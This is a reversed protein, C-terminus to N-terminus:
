IFLGVITASLLSAMTAVLLMKLGFSSVEKVKAGNIAQVSGIIIGISSFNAFSMLFTSIIAVTKESFDGMLPQFELIAVFENSLLKMGMLSGSAIIDSAPIGMMYAIPAFVYGVITTLDMGIIADFVGNLLALIGLYGILMAAVILAVKGGDLAGNSIADFINKSRVMDDIDIDAEEGTVKVPAVISAIVLASVINLVCAVLVYKAPLMTMYSAVLAASVSAMASVCIIFLRNGKFKEVHTRIALLSESQGFFMSNVANFSEVRPLGTLKSLLGGVYKIIYPLIRLHTLIAFLVSTFVVPLLVNVFFPGGGEPIWGGVVFDIGETAYALIKNFGNAVTEIIKLGVTTALLFWTMLLQLVIMIGVSKFNVNKKDNSLLYAAGLLLALGVVAIIISFLLLAM